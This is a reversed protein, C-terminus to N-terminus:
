PEYVFTGIWWISGLYINLTYEMNEELQPLIVPFQCISNEYITRNDTLLQVIIPDSPEIGYIYLLNDNLTVEPTKPIKKKKPFNCEINPNVPIDKEKATIEFYALMTIIFILQKMIISKLHKAVFNSKKPNIYVINQNM